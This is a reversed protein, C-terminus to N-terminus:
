LEMWKVIDDVVEDILAGWPPVSGWQAKLAIRADEVIARAIAVRQEDSLPKAQPERENRIQIIKNLALINIASKIEASM